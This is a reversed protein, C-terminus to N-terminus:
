LFEAKSSFTMTKGSIPHVFELACSHLAQRDLKKGNPCIIPGFNPNYLRDCCLPYGMHSIHVRIQHTRGTKLVFKASFYDSYQKLIEYQTLANDGTLDVQRRLSDGVRKIPLDIEGSKEGVFVGSCLAVYERHIHETTLKSHALQNKAVIMLGSTDRDLRNVPRYVFDGWINALANALCRGYHAKVPIVAIGATKDIVAVDEDEYVINVPMDLKPIPAINEDVLYICFREGQSLMDILRVPIEKGNVVRCVLGLSKRLAVCISSSIGKCKLIDEVKGDFPAIYEIRRKLM